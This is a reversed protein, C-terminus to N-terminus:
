FVREDREPYSILVGRKTGQYVFMSGGALGNAYGKEFGEKLHKMNGAGGLAIVPISVAESIQKILGLDYGTM